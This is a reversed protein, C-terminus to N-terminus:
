HQSLETVFIVYKAPSLYSSCLASYAVAELLLVFLMSQFNLSPLLSVEWTLPPKSFGQGQFQAKTPTAKHPYPTRVSRTLASGTVDVAPSSKTAADTSLGPKSEMRKSFM